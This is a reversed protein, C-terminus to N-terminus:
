KLLIDLELNFIEDKIEKMERELENARSYLYDLRDKTERLEKKTM